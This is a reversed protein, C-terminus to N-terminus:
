IIDGMHEDYEWGDDNAPTPRHVAPDFGPIELRNYPDDREVENARYRRMKGSLEEMAEDVANRVAQADDAKILDPRQMIIYRLADCAHDDKKHPEDYPNNEYQLQKTQYTKWRYRKLEWILNVCNPAIRLKCFEDFGKFLEPRYDGLYPAENFYKKVRVVGSKVDNNGLIFNLGYKQYEQQVSTKTIGNRSKISPDAVLIDPMRGHAKFRQKIKLAHQDVTLDKQYWEDFVIGFGAKNWATWLAATPNNLGHDLGLIWLWENRPFMSNPDTIPESLVQRKGETPEFNPYVLGGKRVFGGGIRVVVDEDDKLNKVFQNIAKESLYPNETTEIEIILTEQEEHPKEYDNEYLDDYIWTMGEVPTMTIWYDGETDILRALCEVWINQPPEEDFHTWHRSTGAFKDLDQDYSMFEITSSNSLTLTWLSADWSDEWSGNILASPYLWQRYQPLLIKQIGQKFDVGVVRGRNPGIQNLEPRYPHRNTARWIGETVGGTTKGSRNGGIYLKAHHESRHFLEQKEHPRYKKINPAMANEKIGDSLALLADDISWKKRPM